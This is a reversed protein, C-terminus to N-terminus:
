YLFKINSDLVQKSKLFDSVEDKYGLVTVFIIDFDNALLTNADKIETEFLKMGIKKPDVDYVFSICKSLDYNTNLQKSLTGAGYIAINKGESKATLILKSFQNFTNHQDNSFSEWTSHRNESQLKRLIARIVYGSSVSYGPTQDREIAEIFFGSKEAVKQISSLTFYSLHEFQFPDCNASSIVTYDPVEIFILGDVNLTSSLSSLWEVPNPIHEFVHRAVILDISCGDFLSFGQRILYSVAQTNYESFYLSSSPQRNKFLQLFHGMDAGYELINIATGAYRLCFDVQKQIHFAEQPTLSNRRLQSNTSYYEQLLENSPIKTAQAFNCDQCVGYEMTLASNPIHATATISLPTLTGSCIFCSHIEM